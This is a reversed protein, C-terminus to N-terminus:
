ILQGAIEAVMQFAQDIDFSRFEPDRLVMRLRADKQRRLNALKEKSVDVPPNGPVALKRRVLDLFQRGSFDLGLHWAAHSLDYFDRIAADRRSLAARFKEAMAEELGICPLALDGIMPNGSIPDQLITRAFGHFAPRLLPERVSVEILLNEPQGSTPSVYCVAGNYQTSDNAGILPEVVALAPLHAGVLAIANKVAAAAHRRQTRGADVPLSIMFDLDESLRYFSAHVKSLCTGGKFVLKDGAHDALFSLMVTAFYDKEVLRASFGTRAVTYNVAERFLTVDDHLILRSPELM